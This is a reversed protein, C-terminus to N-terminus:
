KTDGHPSDITQLNQLRFQPNIKCGAIATGVVALRDGTATETVQYISIPIPPDSPHLGFNRAIAHYEAETVEDFRRWEILRGHFPLGYTLSFFHIFEDLDSFGDTIALTNAQEDTLLDSDAVELKYRGLEHAYSRRVIIPTINICIPDPDVLKRCDKTRQGTYLQVPEGPIAHRKRLGRITCQKEGSEVKNAWRDRFNYAVM